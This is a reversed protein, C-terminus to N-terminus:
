RGLVVLEAHLAGSAKLLQFITILDRPTAGLANLARALESVTLAPELVQVPGGSEAVGVQTRPLVTTKGRSFPAPQSADAERSTSIALNGHTVAVRGVKVNDGAVVTGTRENIIVRATTDPNVELVGIDGMFAVLQHEFDDPVFVQVTGPDVAIASDNFRRNIAKAIARATNFDHERLLLRIQGDTLIHGRAECEVTAGGPIRGVTPHNKSVTASSGAAGGGSSVGHSFGGVLVQGQAVAYVVNDAGRLPTLVLQGGSLSTANDLTSVTIDIRTGKRSFPGLEATVMVVSINGSKFVSSGKGDNTIQSSVYFRQLMDVAVQQTFSEKSGTGELGIVLGLGTLHNSRAGDLETIDKIRVGGQASVNACLGAAAALALLIQRGKV